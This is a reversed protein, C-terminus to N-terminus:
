DKPTKLTFWIEESFNIGSLSDFSEVIKKIRGMLAKTDLKVEIYFNEGIQLPTVFDESNTSVFNEAAEIFIDKDTYYLATLIKYAVEKWATVNEEKKMIYLIEPKTGKLIKFDSDLTFIISDIVKVPAYKEPLSWIKLALESLDETRRRIQRSTWDSYGKLDRTYYFKSTAFNVRKEAFFSTDRKIDETLVLNGLSNLYIEHNQLDNKAELYNKWAKNLKKPTVYDVSIKKYPPLNQANVANKELKYLFYKCTTGKLTLYFEPSILAFKFQEDNPFTYKGNGATIAAWFSDIDIPPNKELRSLINGATQANDASQKCVKARFALSILADVMQMFTQEDFKRNNLDMLIIPMSKSDLIYILEFFKKDLASLTQFDTTEDFILRSYFQAYGYMDKLFKEVQETKDGSYNESFYKKFTFYLENKSIHINKKGKMDTITRRKSVLYQFMFTEVTESNKLLREMPLWYEKYLIEQFDSDLDMLLYNRILETETLDKGTSNLSEFIQQPQENDLIIQVVQLNFIATYLKSVEINSAEIEKKFCDYASYLKSKKEADSFEAGNMLKEFIARDYETPLIKFAYKSNPTFHKIFNAQISFKTDEDAKSDYLAKALIVISSIRQQGDVIVYENFQGGLKRDQCVIAGMFHENSKKVTEKLDDFLQKCQEERWDYNRQYVPVILTLNNQFINALQIKAAQM